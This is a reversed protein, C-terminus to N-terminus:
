AVSPNLIVQFELHSDAFKFHVGDVKVVISPLMSDFLETCQLQMSSPQVMFQKIAEPDWDRVHSKMEPAGHAGHGTGCDDRASAIFAGFRHRMSIRVTINIDALYRTPLLWQRYVQRMMVYHSFMTVLHQRCIGKLKAHGDSVGLFVTTAAALIRGAAM